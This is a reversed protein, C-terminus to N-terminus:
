AMIGKVMYRLGALVLLICSVAFLWKKYKILKLAFEGFVFGMLPYITSTLSFALGVGFAKVVSAALLIPVLVILKHCVTVGRLAGLTFGVGFGSYKKEPTERQWSIRAQRTLPEVEPEEADCIKSTDCGACAQQYHIHGRTPCTSCDHTDCPEEKSDSKHAYASRLNKKWPPAWKFLHTAALYSSFGILLVGSLINLLSGPVVVMKGVAAIVVSLAVIAIIRGVLYGGCTSRNTTQLSFVLLACVWLNGFSFGLIIA